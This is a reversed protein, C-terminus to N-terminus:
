TQRKVQIVKLQIMMTISVFSWFSFPPSLFLSLSIWARFSLYSVWESKKDQKLIYVSPFTLSVELLNLRRILSLERRLFLSRPSPNRFLFLSGLDIGIDKSHSHCLSSREKVPLYSSLHPAQNMWKEMERKTITMELSVQSWWWQM